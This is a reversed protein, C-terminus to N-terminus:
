LGDIKIGFQVALQFADQEGMPFTRFNDVSKKDTLDLGKWSMQLEYNDQQRMPHYSISVTVTRQRPFTDGVKSLEARMREMLETLDPETEPTLAVRGCGPLQKFQGHPHCECIPDTHPYQYLVYYGDRYYAAFNGNLLWIRPQERKLLTTMPTYNLKIKKILFGRNSTQM